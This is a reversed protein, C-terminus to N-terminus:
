GYINVGKVTIGGISVPNYNNDFVVTHTHETGDALKEKFSGISFNTFDLEVTESLSVSSNILNELQEKTIYGTLDIEGTTDVIIGALGQPGRIGTDGKEGKLDCSSTGSDSTITLTTGNWQHTIGM